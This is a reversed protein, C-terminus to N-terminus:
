DAKNRKVAWVTGTVFYILTPVILIKKFLAFNQEYDEGGTTYVWFPLVLCFLLSAIALIACIWLVPDAKKPKEAWKPLDVPSEARDDLAEQAASDESDDPLRERAGAMSAFITYLGATLLWVPIFLFFLHLFGAKAIWAAVAHLRILQLLSVLYSDEQPSNKQIILAVLM